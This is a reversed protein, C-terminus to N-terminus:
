LGKILMALILLLWGVFVLWFAIGSIFPITVLFGILGLIGLILAIIFTIFKPPTLKIKM